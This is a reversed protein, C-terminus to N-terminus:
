IRVPLGFSWRKWGKGEEKNGEQKGEEREGGGRWEGWAENKIKLETWNGVASLHVPDHELIKASMIQLAEVNAIANQVSRRYIQLYSQLVAATLELNMAAVRKAFTDALSEEVNDYFRWFLNRKWIINM